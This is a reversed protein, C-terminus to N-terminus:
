RKREEGEEKPGLSRRGEASVWRRAIEEIGKKGPLLANWVVNNVVGLENERKFTFLESGNGRELASGVAEVKALFAGM